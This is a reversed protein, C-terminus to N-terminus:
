ISLSNGRKRNFQRIVLYAKIELQSVLIKYYEETSHLM